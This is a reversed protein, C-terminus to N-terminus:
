SGREIIRRSPIMAAVLFLLAILVMLWGADPRMKGIFDGVQPFRGGDSNLVGELIMGGSLLAFLVHLLTMGCSVGIMAASVAAGWMLYRDSMQAMVIPFIVWPAFIAALTRPDRRRSHVAASLACLFVCTAYLIVLAIKVEPQFVKDFTFRFLKFHLSINGVVDHLGWGAQDLVAPLNTIAASLVMNNHNDAEGGYLIGAKLWSYSGGYLISAMWFSASFICLVWTGWYRRPLIWPGAVVLVLLGWMLGRPLSAQKAFPHLVFFTAIGLIVLITVISFRTKRAYVSAIAVMAAAGTCAVMWWVAAESRILWPWCVFGTGLAFGAILRLFSNFKGAMLPWVILVPAGILLQAKLMVGIAMVVGAATWWELSAMLVMGVIFPLIWVDWQPLVHADVITPPNFWVLLGAILGCAWGRHAAPLIRASILMIVFLILMRMWGTWDMWQSGGVFPANVQLAPQSVTYTVDDTATSDGGPISASYAVARLHISQGATVPRLMAKLILNGAQGMLVSRPKTSNEYYYGTGWDVRWRISNGDPNVTLNVQVADGVTEVSNIQVMPTARPPPSAFRAYAFWFGAFALMFAVMGSPLLPPKGALDIREPARAVWFWVLFFMAIAAAGACAANFNVVSDAVDEARVESTDFRPMQSVSNNAPLRRDGLTIRSPDDRQVHRAWIAMVMLRMPSYDLNYDGGPNESVVRDYFHVIGALLEQTTLRRLAPDTSWKEFNAPLQATETNFLASGGTDVKDLDELRKMVRPPQNVLMDTYNPMKAQLEAERIANSGLRYGNDMVFFRITRTQYWVEKRYQIGAWTGWAFTALIFPVALVWALASSRRIKGGKAIV